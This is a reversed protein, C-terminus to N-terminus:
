VLTGVRAVLRCGRKGLLRGWGLFHVGKRSLLGEVIGSGNQPKLCCVPCSTESSQLQLRASLSVIGLLERV